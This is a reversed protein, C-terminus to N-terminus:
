VDPKSKDGKEENRVGKRMPRAHMKHAPNVFDEVKQKEQKGEHDRDLIGGVFVNEDIEPKQKKEGRESEDINEHSVVEKKPIVPQRIVHLDVM